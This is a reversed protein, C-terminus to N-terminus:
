SKTFFAYIDKLTLLEAIKDPDLDISSIESLKMLLNLHAFSDWEPIEEQTTELSLSNGDVQFVEAVTDIFLQEDM